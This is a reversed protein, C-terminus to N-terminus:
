LKIFIGSRKLSSIVRPMDWLRRVFEGGKGEEGLAVLLLPSSIFRTRSFVKMPPLIARLRAMVKFLGSFDSECLGMSTSFAVPAGATGQGNMPDIEWLSKKATPSEVEKKESVVEKEL